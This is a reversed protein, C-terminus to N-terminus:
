RMPTTSYILVILLLIMTALPNQLSRQIVRKLPRAGYVPDYGASALWAVASGDLNLTIKRDVLLAKLRKLQIEVIADMQEPFLRHFLIIEDLRNLFEPRFATRVVNMVQERVEGSDHGEAQEALITDANPRVVWLYFTHVLIVALLLAAIQYVFEVPFTKRM